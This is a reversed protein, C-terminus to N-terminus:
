SYRTTENGNAPEIMDSNPLIAVKDLRKISFFLNVPDIGRSSPLRTLIVRNDSAWFTSSPSIGVSSPLIVRRSANLMSPFVSVPDAGCSIQARRFWFSVENMVSQEALPAPTTHGISLQQVRHRLRLHNRILYNCVPSRITNRHVIKSLELQNTM